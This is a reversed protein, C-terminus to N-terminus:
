NGRAVAALFVKRAQEPQVTTRYLYVDDRRITTRLGILDRETGIIWMLEYSNMSGELPSYAEGQELRAEVSFAIQNGDSLGFSIMTHALSPTNKFPIVIFDVSQIQDLQVVRDFHRVDYDNESRYYTDRINYLHVRDSDIEAYPLVSLNARWLRDHSPEAPKPIRASAMLAEVNKAVKGQVAENKRRGWIYGCGNSTLIGVVM